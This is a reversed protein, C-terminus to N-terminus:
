SIAICTPSALSSRGVSGSLMSLSLLCKTHSLHATCTGAPNSATAQASATPATSSPQATGSPSAAGAARAAAAAAAARQPASAPTPSLVTTVGGPLLMHLKLCTHETVLRAVYLWCPSCPYVPSCEGIKELLHGHVVAGTLYTAICDHGCLLCFLLCAPACLLWVAGLAPILLSNDLKCLVCRV